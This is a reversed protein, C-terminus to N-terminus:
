VEIWAEIISEVASKSYDVFSLPAKSKLIKWTANEMDKGYLLLMENANSNKNRIDARGFAGSLLTGMPELTIEMEQIIILLCKLQYSGINEEDITMQYESLKILGKKEYPELWTKTEALLKNYAKIWNEKRSEWDMSTFVKEHRQKLLQLREELAM